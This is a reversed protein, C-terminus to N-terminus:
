VKQKQVESETEQVMSGRKQVRPGPGEAELGRIWVGPNQIWVVTGQSRTGTRHKTSEETWARVATASQRMAAPEPSTVQIQVCVCWVAM